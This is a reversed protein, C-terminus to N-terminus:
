NINKVMIIQTILKLVATKNAWRIYTCNNGSYQRFNGHTLLSILYAQCLEGAMSAWKFSGHQILLSNGGWFGFTFSHTYKHWLLIVDETAQWRSVSVCCVPFGSRYSVSCCVFEWMLIILLLKVLNAFLAFFMEKKNMKVVAVGERWM